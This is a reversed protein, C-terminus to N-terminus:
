NTYEKYLQLIEASLKIEEKFFDQNTIKLTNVRIFTTSIFIIFLKANEHQNACVKNKVYM